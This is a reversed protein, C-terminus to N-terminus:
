SARRPDGARARAPEAGAAARGAPVAEGGLMSPGSARRQARGCLFAGLALRRLGQDWNVRDSTSIATPTIPATPAACSAGAGRVAGALREPRRRSAARWRRTCRWRAASGAAGARRAAAGAAAGGGRPRPARGPSPLDVITHPLDSAESSCRRRSRCTPRRRVRAPRRGRLRRLAADADRQVCRWIEAAITELERRPDPCPVITLSDDHPARSAARAPARDLVDRQLTRWCRRRRPAPPPDVFRADFDCSPCSTTAAPHQRAGAAGLAGAASRTPPLRRRRRRTTTSRAAGAPAVPLTNPPARRPNLDEWLERCPNLTYVYCSADRAGAVRLDLRYLRPSSRSASCTCRPRRRAAGAPPTRAFFEPLTVAGAGATQGRPGFLALWLARQWRQLARTSAEARAGGRALGGADRAPSFPTSTSCRRWSPRWSLGGRDLATADADGADGSLRAGAGAGARGASGRDHFLALLAGELIDRDVIRLDPASAAAVDRCSPRASAPRARERRHRATARPGAQRLGEVLTNPVVLHM